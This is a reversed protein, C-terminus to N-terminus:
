PLESHSVVEFVLLLDTASDQLVEFGSFTQSNLDMESPFAYPSNHSILGDVRYVEVPPTDSGISNSGAFKIFSGDDNRLAYGAYLVMNYTTTGGLGTGGDSSASLVFLWQQFVKALFLGSTGWPLGAIASDFFFAESLSEFYWMPDVPSEFASSFFMSQEGYISEPQYATITGRSGFYMRSVLTGNLTIPTLSRIGLYLSGLQTVIGGEQVNQQFSFTNSVVSDTGSVFDGSPLSWVGYLDVSRIQANSGLNNDWAFSPVEGGAVLDFWSNDPVVNRYEIHYSSTSTDLRVTEKIGSTYTKLYSGGVSLYLTGGEPSANYGSQGDESLLSMVADSLTIINREQRLTVPASEGMVGNVWYRYVVSCVEWEDGLVVGRGSVSVTSSVSGGGRLPTVVWEERTIHPSEVVYSGEGNVTFTQALGSVDVSIFDLPSVGSVGSAPVLNGRLVLVVGTPINYDIREAGLSLSVSDVVGAVVSGDEKIVSDSFFELSCGGGLHGLPLQAVGDARVYCVQSGYMTTYLFEVYLSESIKLWQRRLVKFDRSDLQVSGLVVSRTSEGSGLSGTNYWSSSGDGFINLPLLEWLLGARYDLLSDSPLVSLLCLQNVEQASLVRDWAQYLRLWDGSSIDVGVSSTVGLSGEFTGLLFGNLYVFTTVGNHSVVIDYGMDSYMVHTLRKISGAPQIYDFSLYGMASLSLSGVSFLGGRVVYGDSLSYQLRFTWESGSLPLSVVGGSWGYGVSVIGSEM